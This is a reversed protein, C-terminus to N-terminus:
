PESILLTQNLNLKFQFIVPELVLVPELVIYRTSTLASYVDCTWISLSLKWTIFHSATQSAFMERIAAVNLNCYQLNFWTKDAGNILAANDRPWCAARRLLHIVSCDIPLRHIGQPGQSTSLSARAIVFQFGHNPQAIRQLLRFSTTQRRSMVTVHCPMTSLRTTLCNRPRLQNYRLVTPLILIQTICRLIIYGIWTINYYKAVTEHRYYYNNYCKRNEIAMFNYKSSKTKRM